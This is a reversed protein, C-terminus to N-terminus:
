FGAAKTCAIQIIALLPAGIFAFLFLGGEVQGWFDEEKRKNGNM